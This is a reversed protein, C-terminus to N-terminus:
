SKMPSLPYIYRNILKIIDINRKILNDLDRKNKKTIIKDM